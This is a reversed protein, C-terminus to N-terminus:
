FKFIWGLGGQNRSYGRQADSDLDIHRYSAELWNRRTLQYTLRASVTGWNEDADPIVEIDEIDSPVPSSDADYQSATYAGALYFSIRSTIDYGLSLGIRAREQSSYPLLTSEDISYSGVLSLRLKPAPLWTLSFDGYPNSEDGKTAEAYDVYQYGARFSGLLSPSFVHELGLGAFLTDYDREPQVYEVSQLRFDVLLGTGPRLGQRLTLGGVYIDYDQSLNQTTGDPLERIVDEDYALTIWRGALSLRTSERLLYSLTGDLSNYAYDNNVATSTQRPNVYSDQSLRFTDKIRVSTRPTFDYKFTGDFAHNFDVDDEPRDEWYIFIPMYRLSLFMQERNVDFTLDVDAIFKGSSVTDNETQNINDDYELRLRSVAHFNRRVEVADALAPLIMAALLLIGVWRMSKM